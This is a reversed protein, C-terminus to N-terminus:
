KDKIMDESKQIEMLVRCEPSISSNELETEKEIMARLREQIFHFMFNAEGKTVQKKSFQDVVNVIIDCAKEYEGKDEYIFAELQRTWLPIDLQNPLSALKKAIELARDNDELKFKANYVAQSYWWWKKEPNKDAHEELFNVIYPVHQEPTQSASWYYAAYYAILNSIPNIEDLLRWWHYLKGYDYDKLPTVMGFSDGAFQLKYGNYRFQVQDDGFAFAKLIEESPVKPIIEIEPKVQKTGKWFGPIGYWFLFQIGFLVLSLLIYKNRDSKNNAAISVM